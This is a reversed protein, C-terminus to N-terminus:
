ILFAVRKKKLIITLPGPWFANMLQEAKLPIEEALEQLQMRKAIHIILPNDAPRGKAAFIKEVAGDSKANGGLGYVTETPFAVVENEKLLDSAQVIQPYSNLNDVNNDVSWRITKM